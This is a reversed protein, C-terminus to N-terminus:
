ASRSATCLGAITARRSKRKRAAAGARARPRRDGHHLRQAARRAGRHACSVCRDARGAVLHARPHAEGAEAISLYCLEESMCQHSAGSRWARSSSSSRTPSSASCAWACSPSSSCTRHRLDDDFLESSLGPRCRGVGNGRRHDVRVLSGDRHAHRDAHVATGVTGRDAQVGALAHRGAHARRARPQASHRRRRGDHQPARHVADRVRDAAGEVDRRHRVVGVFPTLLAIAPVFRFFNVYPDLALRALRLTGALLGLVVGAASGIAFGSLVRRLSALAHGELVGSQM